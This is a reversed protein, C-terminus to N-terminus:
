DGSRLSVFAAEINKQVEEPILDSVWLGLGLACFWSLGLLVAAVPIWASSTLYGGEKECTIRPRFHGKKYAIQMEPNLLKALWLNRYKVKKNLCRADGVNLGRCFICPEEELKLCGRYHMVEFTYLWCHYTFIFVDVPFFIVRLLFRFFPYM